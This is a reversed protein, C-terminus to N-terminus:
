VVVSIGQTQVIKEQDSHKSRVQYQNPNSVLHPHDLVALPQRQTHLCRPPHCWGRGLSKPVGPRYWWRTQLRPRSKWTYLSWLASWSFRPSPTSLTSHIIIFQTGPFWRSIERGAINQRMQAKFHSFHTEIEVILWWWLVSRFLNLVFCVFVILVRSIVLSSLRLSLHQILVLSSVM